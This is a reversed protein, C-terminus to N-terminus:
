DFLSMLESHGSVIALTKMSVAPNEVFAGSAKLLEIIAKDGNILALVMPTVYGDCLGANVDAGMHILFECTDWFGASAAMHLPTAGERTLPSHEARTMLLHCVSTNGVSAAFHIARAGTKPHSIDPAAGFRLLMECFNFGLTGNISALLLPIDGSADPTNPCAGSELLALCHQTNNSRIAFLLPTTGLNDFIVSLADASMASASAKVDVYSAGRRILSGLNERLLEM